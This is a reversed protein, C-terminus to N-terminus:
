NETPTQECRDVILMEASERKKELKLGLKEVAAFMTPGTLGADLQQQMMWELHLDYAGTLGTNDVIPGDRFYAPSLSQLQKALQATTVGFCDAAVAGNTGGGIVRACGATGRGNPVATELKPGGKSVELSYVQTARAERHVQLKFREELLKRLMLPIQDKTADSPVKAVIEYRTVASPDTTLEILWRPGSLQNHGISYALMIIEDLRRNYIRLVRGPGVDLTPMYSELNSDGPPVIRVSAVEFEPRVQASAFAVYLSLVAASFALRM